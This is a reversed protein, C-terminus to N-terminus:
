MATTRAIENFNVGDSVFSITFVKATVTGTALTGTSKFGTGFTLTKSSSGSTTLVLFLRQGTTPVTVNITADHAPVLTFVNALTPDLAITAASTLAVPTIGVLTGNVNIMEVESGKAGVAYGQSVVSLGKFRTYGM